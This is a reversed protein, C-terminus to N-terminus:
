GELIMMHESKSQKVGWALGVEWRIQKYQKYVCIQFALGSVPDQIELVDEASDGQTPLAPARTVLHMASRSFMLNRASTNEVTMAVASAPLAQRLGPAALVLAGPAAVGTAVVYKNTDGAFTVIDGALVTGTGTILTISTAGIAYGATNSTYSAGTGKTTSKVQASSHLSVGELDGIIGRRLLADTGSENVKFLLSQKGRLNAIASTNLVLQLDSTPAGNDELIKRSQALDSLDSATGFPATGATGYARSANVYLAALDAEVENVLVRMAQAFQDRIVNGQMGTQGVAKQEEGNWRVPAYRSKSITMTTNGITQDGDNPATVGPTIDSATIAPVIPINIVQDKAAREPTSDRSVAPIFGVLERSVVDMAEYLTPILNTITNGYCPLSAVLVLSLYKRKM